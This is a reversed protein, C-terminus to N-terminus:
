GTYTVGPYDLKAQQFQAEEQRAKKIAQEIQALAQRGSIM